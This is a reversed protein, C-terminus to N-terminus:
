STPQTPPFFPFQRQEDEQPLPEYGEAPDFSPLSEVFVSTDDAAVAASIEIEAGGPDAGADPTPSLLDGMALSVDDPLFFPGFVGDDSVLLAQGPRELSVTV